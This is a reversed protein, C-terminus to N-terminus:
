RRNIQGTACDVSYGHADTDIQWAPLLRSTSASSQLTYVCEMGSIVSCVVGEESRYDLFRVLATVCSMEGEPEVAANEMTVHSGTVAALAGGDFRLEVGCGAVEVGSLFESLVATNGTGGGTDRYGFRRCFDETFSAADEVPVSLSQGDFSGGSRFYITGNGNQFSYIGGGQDHSEVPGGLLFAAIEGEADVNRSVTLPTLCKQGLDVQGSIELHNKEFLQRLEEQTDAGSRYSRFSQYGLLLLLFANLLALLLICINKLRYTEM